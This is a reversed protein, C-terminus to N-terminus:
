VVAKGILLKLTEWSNLSLLKLRPLKAAERVFDHTPMPETAPPNYLDTHWTSKLYKLAPCHTILFSCKPDIELLELTAMTFTSNEVVRKLTSLNEPPPTFYLSRLAPLNQLTHITAVNETGKKASRKATRNGGLRRFSGINAVSTHEAGYFTGKDLARGSKLLKTRKSCRWFGSLMPATLARLLRNTLTLRVLAPKSHAAYQIIELLVENPLELLGVVPEERVVPAPLPSYQSMTPSDLDFSARDLPPIVM